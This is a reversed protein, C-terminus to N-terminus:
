IYLMKLLNYCGCYYDENDGHNITYNYWNDKCCKGNCIRPYARCCTIKINPNKRFKYQLVVYIQAIFKACSYYTGGKILVRKKVKADEIVKKFFDYNKGRQKVLAKKWKSHSYKNEVLTLNFKM